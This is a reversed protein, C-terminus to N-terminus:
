EVEEKNWYNGEPSVNLYDDIEQIEKNFETDTKMDAYSKKLDDFFKKRRYHDIAKEIVSQMSIGEQVAIFKLIDRINENVRITTSM